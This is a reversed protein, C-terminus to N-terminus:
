KTQPKDNKKVFKLFTINKIEKTDNTILYENIKSDLFTLMGHGNMYKQIEKAKAINNKVETKIPQNKSVILNWDEKESLFVKLHVLSEHANNLKSGNKNFLVEDDIELLVLKQDFTKVTFGQKKLDEIIREREINNAESTQNKVANEKELTEQKQKALKEANQKDLLEKKQKEVKEKELKETNQKDLNNDKKVVNEAVNNTVNNPMTYTKSGDKQIQRISQIESKLKENENKLVEIYTENTAVDNKLRTNEVKCEKTEYKANLYLKKSVCSFASISLISVLFINKSINKLSFASHYKM